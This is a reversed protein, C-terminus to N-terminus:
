IQYPSKHENYMGDILFDMRRYHRRDWFESGKKYLIIVFIIILPMTFIIAVVPVVYNTRNETDKNGALQQERFTMNKKTDYAIDTTVLPKKNRDVSLKMMETRDKIIDDITTENTTNSMNIDFPPMFIRCCENCSENDLLIDHCCACIREINVFENEDMSSSRHELSEDSSTHEENPIGVGKRPVIKGPEEVGKRPSIKGSNGNGPLANQINISTSTELPSSSNDTNGEQIEPTTNSQNFVDSVTSPKLNHEIKVNDGGEMIPVLLKEHEVRSVEDIKSAALSSNSLTINSNSINKTISFLNHLETDNNILHNEVKSPIIETTDNVTLVCQSYCVLFCAAIVNRLLKQM